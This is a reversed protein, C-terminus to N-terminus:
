KGVVAQAPASEVHARNLATVYYTYQAPYEVSTDTFSHTTTATDRWVRGIIKSPDAIVKAANASNETSTTIRYVCYYRNSDSTDTWTIEGTNVKRVVNAPATVVSMIWQKPPVITKYAGWREKILRNSERLVERKEENEPATTQEDILSRYRFFVSGHVNLEPNDNLNLQKIIETPDRWAAFEDYQSIHKYNAHGIYLHVNKGYHFREWEDLRVVYNARGAQGIYWYIQPVTYDIWEEKIWKETDIFIETNKATEPDAFPSIGFQVAKNNALNYAGIAAKIALVLKNNNQRRWEQRDPTSSASGEGHLAFSPDDMELAVTAGYPYFYDDFHIADVDYHTMVETIVDVVHQRVQPYGADLYFGRNYRYVYQPNQVAFNNVDLKNGTDLTTYLTLLEANPMADLEALTPAPELGSFQAATYGSSVTVRYPNLWAHLEMGHTHTEEVAIQLPDWGGPDTGQRDDTMLFRSWPRHQSPWFADLMPSVQFIVANMNWTELEDLIATYQTRFEAETAVRSFDLNSVTSVWTSRFQYKKLNSSLTDPNVPPGFEETLDDDGDDDDDDDDDDEDDEDDNDDDEEDDDDDDRHETGSAPSACSTLVVGFVLGCGAVVVMVALFARIKTKLLSRIAAAVAILIGLVFKIGSM